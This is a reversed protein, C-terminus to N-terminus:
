QGHGAMRSADQSFFIHKGNLALMEETNPEECKLEMFDFMPRTIAFAYTAGKEGNRREVRSWRESSPVELWHLKTKCKGRCVEAVTARDQLRTFGLDLVVDVGRSAVMLSTTVIRTNCREVREFIWGRDLPTPMDAGFLSLMWEDISFRVGGVRDALM